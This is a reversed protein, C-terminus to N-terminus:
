DKLLPIIELAAAITDAQEVIFNDKALALAKEAEGEDRGHGTLVHLGGALGANLGAGIDGAKDGVVWSNSLDIGLDRKANELMGPNPKRSPHSPHQYPPEGNKHYPSAYVADIKAGKAALLDFMRQQVAAFVKWDFYGRAIGSQNTIVVVPINRANAACITEAAGDILVVKEPNSLYNEEIIIAGDRDLFLAPRGPTRDTLVQNWVHRDDIIATSPLKVSSM